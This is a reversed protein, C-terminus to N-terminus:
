AAPPQAERWGRRKYDEAPDTGAAAVDPHALLYAEADFDRPTRSLVGETPRAPKVVRGVFLGRPTPMFMGELLGMTILDRINDASGPHHEATDHFLVSAGPDLVAYFKLFEDARIAIDSDFLAFEYLGEPEFGLSPGVVLSVYSQLGFQRIRSEAVASAEPSLDITTLHGFGNDRLACGIAVASRGLWTGTEIASRPKVLRVLAHLFDLTEVEASWGDFMSWLRSPKAGVPQSTKEPQPEEGAFVVSARAVSPRALVDETLARAWPASALGDSERVDLAMPYAFTKHSWACFRGSARVGDSLRASDIASTQSGRHVQVAGSRLLSVPIVSAQGVDFPTVYVFDGREFHLGGALDAGVEFDARTVGHLSLQGLRDFTSFAVRVHDAWGPLYLQDTGAINLLDQDHTSSLIASLAGNLELGNEADIAQDPNMGANSFEQPLYAFPTGSGVHLAHISHEGTVTRAFSELSRRLFPSPGCSIVVTVIKM